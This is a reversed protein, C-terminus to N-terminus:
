RHIWWDDLLDMAKKFCVIIGGLIGGGVVAAPVLWFVTPGLGWYLFAGMALVGLITYIIESPKM